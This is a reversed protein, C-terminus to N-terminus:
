VIKLTELFDILHFIEMDNIDGEFKKINYGLIDYNEFHKQMDDVLYLNSLDYKIKKTNKIHTEKGDIYYLDCYKRDYVKEIVGYDNILKLIENIYHDKASSYIIIEFFENNNKLYEFLDNLFPRFMIYKDNNLKINSIKKISTYILTNDLDLAIIKKM